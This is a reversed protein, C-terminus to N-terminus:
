ATETQLISTTTGRGLLSSEIITTLKQATHRWTFRSEITARAAEGLRRRFGSDAHARALAEYLSKPDDSECLLGNEGDAIVEAIQGLRSAVVCCGAAMYEFLKIPSFYFGPIDIFPAVAVDMTALAMPIADHSIAGTFVTRDAVGLREAMDRLAGAAPGDGVILLRVGADDRSLQEVARLLVEVGHWPKLSGVFGVVFGNGLGYRERSTARPPVREFSSFDAGNPLVHVRHEDVGSEVLRDALPQSVVAIGDAASLVRHEIQRALSGMQLSRYNEAEEALPANMEIFYPIQLARALDLGVHGFLSLREIIAEPPQERLATLTPTVAWANYLLPRLERAAADSLDHEILWHKLLKGM